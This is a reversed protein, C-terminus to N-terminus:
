RLALPTASEVRTREQPNRVDYLGAIRAGEVRVALVGDLQGDPRLVLLPDGNAVTPEASCHRGNAPRTM